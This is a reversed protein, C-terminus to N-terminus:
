AGVEIKWRLKGGSNGVEIERRLIGGCNGVKFEWRSDGACSKRRLIGGCCRVFVNRGM